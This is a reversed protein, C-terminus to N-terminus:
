LKIFGGIVPMLLEFKYKKESYLRIIERHPNGIPEDSLDFTGYHMPILRKANMEGAAMLGDKPGIHHPAMFWEPQYAGIGIIAIDPPGFLKGVEAFHVDWGSDSGFYIKKDSSEIMFAGWLRTNMDNIFRNGWHRTPLFTIKLNSETISYQQYWGAEQYKISELFDACYEGLNLGTLLKVNPNNKFLLKLSKKHLHDYHDHSLLIYDLNRIEEPEFPLKSYRTMFFSPVDFIPDTIMLKGGLRILFTSHGILMVGDDKSVLFESGDEVPLRFKDNKKEEKFPNKSLQWKILKTIDNVFPFNINRFTGDDNLPNGPWDKKIFNLEPNARLENTKTSVKVTLYIFSLLLSVIIIYKLKRKM